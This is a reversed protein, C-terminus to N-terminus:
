GSKKCILFYKWHNKNLFKVLQNYIHPPMISGVIENTTFSPKDPIFISAEGLKSYKTTDSKKNDPNFCYGRENLFADILFAEIKM